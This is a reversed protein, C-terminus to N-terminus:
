RGQTYLSRVTVYEDLAINNIDEITDLLIERQNIYNLAARGIQFQKSAIWRVSDLAFFDIGLGATDRITSPGLFPLIIYAGKGVGYKKLVLGSDSYLKPINQKAAIDFMGALGITSNILFRASSYAAAKPNFTLVGHFFRLPEQLNSLINSIRNRIWNTTITRYLKASPKFALTDMAKNFAYIQRNCKEFPDDVHYSNKNNESVGDETIIEADQWDESTSQINSDAFSIQAFYCGIFIVTIAAILCHITYPKQNHKKTNMPKIQYQM